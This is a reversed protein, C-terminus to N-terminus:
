SLDLIFIPLFVVHSFYDALQNKAKPALVIIASVHVSHRVVKLVKGAMKMAMGSFSRIKVGSIRLVSHDHFSNCQIIWPCVYRVHFAEM